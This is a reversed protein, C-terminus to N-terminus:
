VKSLFDKLCIEKKPIHLKRRKLKIKNIAFKLTEEYDRESTDKINDLMRRILSKFYFCKDKTNLNNIDNVEFHNTKLHKIKDKVKFEEILHDIYEYNDKYERDEVKLNLKEKFKRIRKRSMIGKSLLTKLKASHYRKQEYKELRKQAKEFDIKLKIKSKIVGVQVKGIPKKVIEFVKKTKEVETIKDEVHVRKLISTKIGQERLKKLAQKTTLAVEENDLDILAEDIIKKYEPKLREPFNNLVYSIGYRLSSRRQGSSITEVLMDRANWKNDEVLKVIFKHRAEPLKKKSERLNSITKLDAKKLMKMEESNEDEPFDMPEMSFIPTIVKETYPINHYIEKEAYVTEEIPEDAPFEIVSEGVFKSQTLKYLREFKPKLKSILPGFRKGMKYNIFLNKERMFYAFITRAKNKQHISAPKNDLHIVEGFDIIKLNLEPGIVENVCLRIQNKETLYNTYEFDICHFSPNSYDTFLYENQIGDQVIKSHGILSLWFFIGNNQYDLSINQKNRSIKFKAIETFGDILIPSLEIHKYTNNLHGLLYVFNDGRVYNHCYHMMHYFYYYCNKELRKKSLKAQFRNYIFKDIFLGLIGFLFVFIIFAFFQSVSLKEDLKISFSFSLLALLNLITKPLYTTFCSILKQRESYLFKVEKHQDPEHELRSLIIAYEVFEPNCCKECFDMYLHKNHILNSFGAEYPDSFNGFNKQFTGRIISACDKCSCNFYKWQNKHAKFKSYVVEYYDIVLENIFFPMLKHTDIM